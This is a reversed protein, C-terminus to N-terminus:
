VHPQPELQEMTWKVIRAVMPRQNPVSHAGGHQLVAGSGPEVYREVFARSKESAVVTDWEGVVSLNPVKIKRALYRDRVEHSKVIFGSVYIAFKLPYPNNLVAPDHFCNTILQALAAGQSFGVIGDFPGKEKIIDRVAQLAPGIDFNVGDPETVFWGRLNFDNANVSPTSSDLANSSIDEQKLRLPGDLYVVEIDNQELQKRLTSTKASFAAANMAFGHLMLVKAKPKSM